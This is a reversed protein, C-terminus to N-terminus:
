ETSFYLMLIIEVRVYNNELFFTSNNKGPLVSSISKPLPPLAYPCLLLVSTRFLTLAIGTKLLLTSRQFAGHFCDCYICADVQIFRMSRVERLGAPFLLPWSCVHSRRLVIEGRM